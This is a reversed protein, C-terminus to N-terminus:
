AKSRLPACEKQMLAAMARDEANASQSLAKFVGQIDGAARNQSLKFKGELRQIAIEFAVIGKILHDRYDDPMLVSWPTAPDPEYFSLTQRLLTVVRDADEILTARGYAHVAAYNWTPVAPTQSYWTPSIYAHPGHFVALVQSAHDFHRWQPNARAMHAMLTGATSGSPDPRYLMPLHTAFPADGDHTILTAFSHERMLASLKELDSVQFPGPTYM